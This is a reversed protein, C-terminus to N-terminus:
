FGLYDLEAYTLSFSGAPDINEAIREYVEIKQDIMRLENQYNRLQSLASQIENLRSQFTGEVVTSTYTRVVAATRNEDELDAAEAIPINFKTLLADREKTTEVIDANLEKLPGGNVSDIIQQGMKTYRISPTVANGEPDFGPILGAMGMNMRM